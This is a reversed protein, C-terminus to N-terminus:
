NYFEPFPDAAGTPEPGQRQMNESSAEPPTPDNQTPLPPQRFTQKPAGVTPKGVKKIIEKMMRENAM